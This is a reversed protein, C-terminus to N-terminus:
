GICRAPFGVHLSRMADGAAVGRRGGWRTVDHELRRDAALGHKRLGNQALVLIGDHVVNDFTADGQTCSAANTELLENNRQHISVLQRRSLRDYPPDDLQVADQFWQQRCKQAVQVDGDGQHQVVLRVAVQLSEVNDGRVLDVDSRQGVLANEHRDKVDIAPSVDVLADPSGHELVQLM